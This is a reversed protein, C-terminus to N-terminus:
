GDLNPRQAIEVDMPYNLDTMVSHDNTEVLHISDRHRETIDRIGQLEERVSLLEELLDGSFILPHGMHGDYYPGTILSHNEIHAQILSGVVSESRPQDVSLILIDSASTPIHRLGAKISTTKGNKYNENLVVTVQPIDVVVKTIDPARHGVVVIVSSVGAALLTKVQYEVLTSGNWPLLAKLSGMRTSQGAALLIAWMDRM